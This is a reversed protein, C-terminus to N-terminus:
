MNLRGSKRLKSRVMDVLCLGEQSTLLEKRLQYIWLLKHPEFENRHTSSHMMQGVPHEWYVDQWRIQNLVIEIDDEDLGELYDRENLYGFVARYSEIVFHLYKPSRENDLNLFFSTGSASDRAMKLCLLVWGPACRVDLEEWYSVVMSVSYKNLYAGSFLDLGHTTAPIYNCPILFFM